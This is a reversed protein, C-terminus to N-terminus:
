GAVVAASASTESMEAMVTLDPSWDADIWVRDAGVRHLTSEVATLLDDLLKPPVPSHVTLIRRPEPM